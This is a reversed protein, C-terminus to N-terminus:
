CRVGWLINLLELSKGLIQAADCLRALAGMYSPNPGMCQVQSVDRKPFRVTQSNSLPLSQMTPAERLDTKSANAASGGASQPGVSNKSRLKRWSKLYSKNSSASTPHASEANSTSEDSLNVGKFAQLGGQLGVDNGLKKALNTQAREMVNELFQMEELVADANFTDVKSLKLLAATLLDCTSVKEEVNKLKINKVRWIDRPVFLRNTIYGGRPHAITQYITRLFWFPRLLPSEPCPELPLPPNTALPNPSGVDTSSHIDCDFLHAGGVGATPQAKPLFSAELPTPLVPVAPSAIPKTRPTSSMSSVSTNPSTDENVSLAKSRM